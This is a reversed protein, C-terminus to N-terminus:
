TLAPRRHRPGRRRDPHGRRRRHRQHPPARVAADRAARDPDATSRAPAPQGPEPQDLRHRDRAPDAPPGDSVALTVNATAQVRRGLVDVGGTLQLGGDAAPGLRLPRGTADFYANLDAYTLTVDEVSRRDGGPPREAGARRPVAGPRRVAALRGARRAVPRERHGPHHRGGGTPAAYSRPCSPLGRVRVQPLDTVGTANQINRALLSEAGVRALPRHGLGPLVGRDPLRLGRDLHALAAGAALPKPTAPAATPRESVNSRGTSPDGVGTRPRHHDAQGAM